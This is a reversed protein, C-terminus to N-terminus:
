LNATDLGRGAEEAPTDIAAAEPAEAPPDAASAKAKGESAKGAVEGMRRVCAHLQELAVQFREENEASGDGELRAVAAENLEPILNIFYNGEERLGHYRREDPLLRSALGWVGAELTLIGLLVFIVQLQLSDGGFLVALFIIGMGTVPLAIELSRRLKRKM